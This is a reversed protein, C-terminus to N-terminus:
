KTSEAVTTSSEAAVFTHDAMTSAHRPATGFWVRGLIPKCVIGVNIVVLLMELLKGDPKEMRLKKAFRSFIRELLKVDERGM